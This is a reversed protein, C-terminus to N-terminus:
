VAFDAAVQAAAQEMASAASCGQSILQNVRNLLDEDELLMQQFTFIEKEDERARQRLRGLERRAQQLATQLMAEERGRTRVLRHQMAGSHDLLVIQGAALGSSSVIGKFRRM